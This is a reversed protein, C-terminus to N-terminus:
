YTLNPRFNMISCVMRNAQEQTFNDMCADDSYDMFNDIPDPSGCTTRPACGYHASSEANTDAILDGNTYGTGCGGDFTHYLGLYHGVEHTATRGLNYSGANPPMYGVYDHHLVVGDVNSGASGSPLYAYGLYGGANNTWINLYTDRDWGTQSKYQSEKKDRYWRNNTHRTIGALEFRIRTDYGGSAGSFDDNLVDIQSQILSNPIDGTGDSKMIIHFVVPITETGSIYYESQIVTQSSNCDSAAKARLDGVVGREIMKRESACRRNEYRFKESKHYAQVSDFVQGEVVVRGDEIVQYVPAEEVFPGAVKKARDQATVSACLLVIVGIFIVRKM